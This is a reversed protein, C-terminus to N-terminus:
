RGPNSDIVGFQRPSKRLRGRFSIVLDTAAGVTVLVLGESFVVPGEFRFGTVTSSINCIQNAASLVATTKADYLLASTGAIAVFVSKLIGGGNAVIFETGDGVIHVYEFEMPNDTNRGLPGYNAVISM